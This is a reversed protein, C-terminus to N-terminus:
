LPPFHVCQLVNVRLDLEIFEYQVSLPADFLIRFNAGRSEGVAQPDRRLLEDIEKATRTVAERDPANIWIIALENAGIRELVSAVDPGGNM